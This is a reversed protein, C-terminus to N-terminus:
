FGMPEDTKPKDAEDLRRQHEQLLRVVREVSAAELLNIADRVRLRGGDRLFQFLSVSALEEREEAIDTFDGLGVEDYKRRQEELTEDRWSSWMNSGAFWKTKHEKCYSWHTRGVNLCGDRKGCQPCVGFYDDANQQAETTMTM